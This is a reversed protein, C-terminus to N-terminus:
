TTKRGYGNDKEWQRVFDKLCLSGGNRKYLSYRNRIKLINYGKMECYDKVCMHELDKITRRAIVHDVYEKFTYKDTHYQVWNNYTSTWKLGRSTCYSKGYYDTTDFEYEVGKLYDELFQEITVDKKCVKNTKTLGRWRMYLRPYNLGHERCYKKFPVGYVLNKNSNVPESVAKDVDWGLNIRNKITNVNIAGPTEECYQKVPRGDSVFYKCQRGM